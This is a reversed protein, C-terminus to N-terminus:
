TTSPTCESIAALLPGLAKLAKKPQQRLVELQSKLLLAVPSSPQLVLLARVEKKAAKHNCCAIALRAKYLHLLAPLDMGSLQGGQQEVLQAVQAAKPLQGSGLYVELLLVCLCLAAGGHIAEVDSYLPELVALAKAHQQQVFLLIGYNIAAATYAPSSPEGPPQKHADLWVALQESLADLSAGPDAYYAALWMNLQVKPDNPLLGEMRQLTQLAADHQGLAWLATGETALEAALVSDGGPGSVGPYPQPSGM